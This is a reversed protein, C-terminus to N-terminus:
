LAVNPGCVSPQILRTCLIYTSYVVELQMAHLLVLAVVKVQVKLDLRKIGTDEVRCDSNCLWQLIWRLESFSFRRLTFCWRSSSVLFSLHRCCGCGVHQCRTLFGLQCTHQGIGAPPSAGMLVKSVEHSASFCVRATAKSERGSSVPFVLKIRCSWDQERVVVM